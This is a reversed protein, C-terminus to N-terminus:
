EQPLNIQLLRAPRGKGVGERGVVTVLGADELRALIRNVSRPTISM